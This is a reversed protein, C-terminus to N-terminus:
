GTVEVREIEHTIGACQLTGDEEGLFLGEITMTQNGPVNGLALAGGVTNGGSLARLNVAVNRLESTRNRVVVDAVCTPKGGFVTGQRLSISIIEIDDVFSPQDDPNQNNGPNQNNAPDQTDDPDNTCPVKATNTLRQISTTGAAFGANPHPNYTVLGEDCTSFELDLSGWALELLGGGGLNDFQLKETVIVPMTISTAGQEFPASGILWMQNGDNDYVYWTALLTLQGDKESVNLIFGHGSETANYWAGGIGPQIAVAANGTIPLLSFFFISFLSFCTLCKKMLFGIKCYKDISM